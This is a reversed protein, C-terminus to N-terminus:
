KHIITGKGDQFDYPCIIIVDNEELRCRRKLIGRLIGLRTTGDECLIEGRGNGYNKKVLGYLQGSNDKYVMKSDLDKKARKFKKGGKNKKPM